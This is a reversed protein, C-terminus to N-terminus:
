FAQVSTTLFAASRIYLPLLLTVDRIVTVTVHLLLAAVLSNVLCPVASLV